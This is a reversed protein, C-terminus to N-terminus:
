LITSSLSYMRSLAAVIVMVGAALVIVAVVVMELILVIDVLHDRFVVGVVFPVSIAGVVGAIVDAVGIVDAEVTVEVALAGVAAVERAVHVTELTLSKAM